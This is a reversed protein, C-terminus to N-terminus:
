TCVGARKFFTLNFSQFYEKVDSVFKIDTHFKKMYFNQESTLVICYISDLTEYYRVTNYSGLWATHLEYTIPDRAVLFITEM